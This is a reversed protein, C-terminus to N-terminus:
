AVLATAGDILLVQVTDGQEFSSSGDYARASWIEGGLKIRGDRGDVRELVLADAGVLADVGTRVAAPQRIQRRAYPRVVLLMLLSVAAFVLFTVWSDAGFAAALAAVAAGAALMSFVLAGGTVVEVIAM